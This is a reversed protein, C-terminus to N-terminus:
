KKDYVSDFIAKQQDADLPKPIFKFTVADAISRDFGQVPWVSLSGRPYFALVAKADDVPMANYRAFNAVSAATNKYMWDITAAYSKGSGRTPM